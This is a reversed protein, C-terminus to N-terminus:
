MLGASRRDGLVHLTARLAAYGHVQEEFHLRESNKRLWINGESVTRDFSHHGSMARDRRGGVACAAASLRLGLCLRRPMKISM